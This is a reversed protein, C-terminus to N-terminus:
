VPKEMQKKRKVMPKDIKLSEKQLDINELGEHHERAKQAALARDESKITQDQTTVSSVSMTSSSPKMEPPAPTSS